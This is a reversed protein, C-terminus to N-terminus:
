RNWSGIPSTWAIHYSSTINHLLWQDLAADSTLEADTPSVRQDLIRQFAPDDLLRVCLRVAERLRQLDWPDDLYRYHM